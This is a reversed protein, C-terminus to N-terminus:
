RPDESIIDHARIVIPQLWKQGWKEAEAPDHLHYWGVVARVALALKHCYATQRSQSDTDLNRTDMLVRMSNYDGDTPDFFASLSLMSGMYGM